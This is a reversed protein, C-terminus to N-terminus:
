RHYTYEVSSWTVHIALNIMVVVSDSFCFLMFNRVCQFHVCQTSKGLHSYQLVQGKEWFVGNLSVDMEAHQFQKSEQLLAKERSFAVASFTNCCDVAM